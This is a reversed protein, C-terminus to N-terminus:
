RAQLAPPSRPGRRCEGRRRETVREQREQPKRPAVAVPRLQVRVQARRVGPELSPVNVPDFAPQAPAADAAALARRLCGDLQAVAARQRREVEDVLIPRRRVDDAPESGRHEAVRVPRRRRREAGARPAIELGVLGHRAHEVLQLRERGPPLARRAAVDEDAELSRRHAAVPGARRAPDGHEIEHPGARPPEVADEHEPQLLAGQRPPRADLREEVVIGAPREVLPVSGAEGPGVSRAAIAVQERGGARTRPPPEDENTLGDPVFPRRALGAREPLRHPLQEVRVVHTPLRDAARERCEGPVDLAGGGLALAQAREGSDRRPRGALRSSQRALVAPVPAEVSRGAREVPRGAEGVLARQLQDAAPLRVGDGLEFAHGGARRGPEDLPIEPRRRDVLLDVPHHAPRDQVGGQLAEVLLKWACDGACVADRCPVDLSGDREHAVADGLRHLGAKADIGAVEPSALELLPELAIELLEHAVLRGRM